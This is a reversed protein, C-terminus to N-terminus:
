RIARVVIDPLAGVWARDGTYVPVGEREALALCARDALSLGLHRTEARMAGTREALSMDFDVVKLDIGTIAARVAARSAGRETLKSVVEAYNVASVVADALAAIVLDAGPEDNLLALVASADLVANAM